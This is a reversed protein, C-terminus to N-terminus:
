KTIMDCYTAGSFVGDEPCHPQKKFQGARGYTDATNPYDVGYNIAQADSSYWPYICYPGGYGSCDTPGIWSDGLVEAKGGTDSVVARNQPHSGDGFTVDFIRIPQQGAWNDKNFSGCFDQGPLCFEGPHDGYIDSHGIEYVFAMPADWVAGWDLANGIENTSPEPTHEGDKPGILVLVSSTEGTTEDTIQEQYPADPNPAWIHVDVIDRGYMIFPGTGASNVLMGNFAAPELIEGKKEQLSWVPLCATYVGVEHKVWVGGAPTCQKVLSDPYIQLELFGEGGIKKPNSDKVTGGFWFTPGASTVPVHRRGASVSPRGPRPSRRAPPQASRTRRSRPYSRCSASLRCAARWTIDQASGPANSVPV